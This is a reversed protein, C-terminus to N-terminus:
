SCISSAKPWESSAPRAPRVLQDYHDSQKRRWYSPRSALPCLYRGLRRRRRCISRSSRRIPLSMPTRGDPAVVIDTISYPYSPVRIPPEARRTTLDIPVVIGHLPNEPKANGVYATRGDPTIAIVGIGLMATLRIPRGIRGSALDIPELANGSAVYATRGDPAIAAGLLGPVTIPGRVEGATLDVPEIVQHEGLGGVGSATITTGTIYATRGSAAIIINDASLDPM